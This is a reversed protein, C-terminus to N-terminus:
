ARTRPGRARSRPNLRPSGHRDALLVRLESFDVQVATPLFQGAIGCPDLLLHEGAVEVLLVPAPEARSVQAELRAHMRGFGEDVLVPLLHVDDGSVQEDAAVPVALAARAEARIGVRATRRPRRVTREPGLAAA